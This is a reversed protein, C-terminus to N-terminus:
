DGMPIFCSVAISTFQLETVKRRRWQIILRILRRTQYPNSTCDAIRCIPQLTNFHFLRYYPFTTIGIIMKAIVRGVPQSITLMIGYQVICLISSFIFPYVSTSAYSTPRIAIKSLIGETKFNHQINEVYCISRCAIDRQSSYLVLSSTM